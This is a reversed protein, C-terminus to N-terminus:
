LEFKKRRGVCDLIRREDHVELSDVYRHEGLCMDGLDCGGDAQDCEGDGLLLQRWSADRSTNQDGEDMHDVRPRREEPQQGQEEEKPSHHRLYTPDKGARPGEARVMAFLWQKGRLPFHRIYEGLMFQLMLSNIIEIRQLLSRFCGEIEQQM